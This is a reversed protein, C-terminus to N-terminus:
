DLWASSISDLGIYCNMYCEAVTKRGLRSYVTVYFFPPRVQAINGQTAAEKISKSSRDVHASLPAGPFVQFWFLLQRLQQGFVVRSLLLSWKCLEMHQCMSNHQLMASGSGPILVLVAYASSVFCSLKTM